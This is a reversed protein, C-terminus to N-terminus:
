VKELIEANVKVDANERLNNYYDEFIQRRRQNLLANRITKRAIDYGEPDPPIIGRSLVVYATDSDAFPGAATGDPLEFIPDAQERLFALQPPPVLRSFPEVDQIKPIGAIDTPKRGRENIDAVVEEARAKALSLAEELRLADRVQQEVESLDPVREPIRETVQVVYYAKSADIIDSVKGEGLGAVIETIEPAYGIGPIVRSTEAFQDSTLLEKQMQAAAEALSSSQAATAIQVAQEELSILTEESPEIKILIHRARVEKENGEGKTEEVKIIHYGFQTKVVGSVEGPKLSFATEEFEKVMRGRRFFGLDGSKRKTADDDSYFEALEEFPDGAHVRELIDEALKRAAAADSESPEKKLEVCVIKVQAPEKYQQSHTEYYSALDEPTLEVQGIFESAKFAILGISAKEYRRRYEESVEEETVRAGSQAVEILREVILQNKVNEAIMDIRPNSLAANWKAPDFKGDTQFAPNRKLSDQVEKDSVVINLREIEQRLLTEQILRDLAQQKFNLLGELHSLDRGGLSARMMESFDRYYDIFRQLTVKEGNVKLLTQRGKEGLNPFAGWLIFAFCILPVTIYLFTKTQRRMYDLVM